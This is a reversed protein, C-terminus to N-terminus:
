HDPLLATANIDFPREQQCERIVNRPLTRADPQTLFRRRRHAVVTFFFSGGPVYARKYDPMDPDMTTLLM